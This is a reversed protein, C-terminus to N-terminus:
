KLLLQARGNIPMSSLASVGSVGLLRSPDHADRRRSKTVVMSQELARASPPGHDGPLFPKVGHHTESVYGSRELVEKNNGISLPLTGMFLRSM